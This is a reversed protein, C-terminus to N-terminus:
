CRQYWFVLAVKPTTCKQGFCQVHETDNLFTLGTSGARSIVATVARRVFLFPLLFGPRFEWWREKSKKKKKRCSPINIAKRFLSDPCFNHKKRWFPTMFYKNRVGFSLGKGESLRNLCWWENGRSNRWHCLFVEEWLWSVFSHGASSSTDGISRSFLGM